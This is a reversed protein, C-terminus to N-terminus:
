KKMASCDSGIWHAKFSVKINMNNGGGASNTKANGTVHENDTAEVHIESSGKMGQIDCNFRIDQERSSSRLVTRTCNSSDGHGFDMAKALSEKTLCTQQTHTQPGKAERAKQAAEMRARQEPTLKQLIADPIPPAGSMQSTSSSEWLGLKVDLPTISDASWALVPLLFVIGTTLKMRWLNGGSGLERRNSGVGTPVAELGHSKMRM